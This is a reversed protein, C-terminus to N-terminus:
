AYEQYHGGWLTSLKGYNAWARALWHVGRHRAVPWTVLALGGAVVMQLLARGFFVLSRGLTPQVGLRGHRFHIAFDQGGRLARRLIWGTKLRSDPVPESVEAEDCWVLRVGQNILRMLLDGDEGGSLGLAPDFVPDLGELRDARLLVNGMRMAHHPVPTGTKFRAWDYFGGRRVWAPAHDPVEALVPALVGHARFDRATARLRELWYPPAREDDDLFALWEGTALAVTMNRTLSINKEPQLAYVVQVGRAAFAPQMTLMVAEASGHADNDVVVLQVPMLTQALLDELLAQLQDLRRYTAICVSIRGPYDPASM